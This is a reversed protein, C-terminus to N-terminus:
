AETLTVAVASLDIDTSAATTATILLYFSEDAGVTEATGLTKATNSSSLATDATVSVQTMSAVSADVLDGAAVTQKRLEADLTVTNGASEIQGALHFATIIDGVKLYSLPVVITSATQSAPCRALSNKNDAAAVAWGATAGIKAGDTILRKQAPRTLAVGSAMTVAGTDKAVTFLATTQDTSTLVFDGTWEMSGAGLGKVLNNAM